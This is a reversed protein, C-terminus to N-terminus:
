HHYDFSVEWGVPKASAKPKHITVEFEITPDELAPRTISVLAKSGTERVIIARVELAVYVSGLENLLRLAEARAEAQSTKTAVIKAQGFNDQPVTVVQYATVAKGETAVAVAKKPKPLQSVAFSAVPGFQAAAAVVKETLDWQTGWSKSRLSDVQAQTAPIRVKKKMITVDKEDLIPVITSRDQNVTGAPTTSWLEAVKETMPSGKLIRGVRPDSGWGEESDFDDLASRILDQDSPKVGSKASFFHNFTSHGM